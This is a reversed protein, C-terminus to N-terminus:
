DCITKEYTYTYPAFIVDNSDCIVVSYKEKLGKGTGGDYYIEYGETDEDAIAYSLIEDLTVHGEQIADKLSYKEKNKIIEIASLNYTYYKKQEHTFIETKPSTNESVEIAFPAKRVSSNDALIGYINMGLLIVGIVMFISMGIAVVKIDSKYAMIAVVLNFIVTMTLAVCMGYTEDIVKTLALIMVVITLIAFAIVLLNKKKM